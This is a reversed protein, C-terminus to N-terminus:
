TAVSWAEQDTAVYRGIRLSDTAIYRGIRLSDTVVYRGVWRPGTAVSSDRVDILPYLGFGHM